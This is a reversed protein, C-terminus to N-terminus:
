AKEKAYREKDLVLAQKAWVDVYQQAEVKERKSYFSKFLSGPLGEYVQQRILRCKREGLPIIKCILENKFISAHGEIRIEMNKEDMMAVRYKIPFGEPMHLTFNRGVYCFIPSHTYDMSEVTDVQEIWENFHTLAVWATEGDVAVEKEAHLENM